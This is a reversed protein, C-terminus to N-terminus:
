PTVAMDGFTVQALTCAAIAATETRLVRPGLSLRQCKSSLALDEESASFGGEPGILVEIRKINQQPFPRKNEVHPHLFLCSSGGHKDLWKPLEVPPNLTMLRNRGCQESASIIVAQWHALKKGMRKPDLKVVTRECLIPTFEDVGLEVAKQVVMDMRSGKSLGQALHIKLASERSVDAVKKIEVQVRQKTIEVIFADAEGNEGDFLIIVEGRKLRLVKSVHHAINSDLTIHNGVVYDEQQYFRHKIMLQKSAIAMLYFEALM